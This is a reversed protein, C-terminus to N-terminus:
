RSALGIGASSSSAQSARHLVIKHQFEPADGVPGARRRDVRIDGDDSVADGGDARRARQLTRRREITRPPHDGGAEDVRMRM